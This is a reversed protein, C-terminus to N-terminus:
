RPPSDGLIGGVRVRDNTFQLVKNIAPKVNSCLGGGAIHNGKNAFPFSFLLAGGAHWEPARATFHM